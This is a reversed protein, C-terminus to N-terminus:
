PFSHPSCRLRMVYVLFTCPSPTPSIGFSPVKALFHPARLFKLSPHTNKVVGFLNQLASCSSCPAEYFCFPSVHTFRSVHLGYDTM